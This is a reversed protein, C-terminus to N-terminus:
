DMLGKKPIGYREKPLFIGSTEPVTIKVGKGALIGLLYFLGDRQAIYEVANLMDVGHLEIDDFGQYFAMGVMWSISSYFVEGFIDILARAPLRECPEFGPHDWAVVLHGKIDRCGAEWVKPTHLQFIKDVSVGPRTFYASSVIWKERDTALTGDQWNDGRGIINLAKM